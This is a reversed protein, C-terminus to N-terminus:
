ALLGSDGLGYQRGIPFPMEGALQSRSVAAVARRAKQQHALFNERGYDSHNSRLPSSYSQAFSVHCLSFFLRAPACCLTGRNLRRAEKLNLEVVSEQHLKPLPRLAIALADTINNPISLCAEAIRMQVGADPNAIQRWASLPKVDIFTSHTTWSSQNERKFPRREKIKVHDARM